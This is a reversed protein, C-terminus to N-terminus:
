NSKLNKEIDKNKKNSTTKDNSKIETNEKEVELNKSIEKADLITDKFLEAYLNVSRIADDNGPIPYDVLDPNANTDVAAIVPIALKNAELM